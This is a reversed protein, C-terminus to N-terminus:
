RLGLNYILLLSVFWSSLYIGAGKGFINRAKRERFLFLSIMASFVYLSIVVALVYISSYFLTSIAGAIVGVIGRMILIKDEVEM